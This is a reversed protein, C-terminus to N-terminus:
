FYPTDSNQPANIKEFCQVKHIQRKISSVTFYVKYESDTSLKGHTLTSSCSFLTSYLPFFPFFIKLYLNRSKVTINAWFLGWIRFWCNIKGLTPRFLLPFLSFFEFILFWWIFVMILIEQDETGIQFSSYSMYSRCRTYTM